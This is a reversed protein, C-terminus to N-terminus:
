AIVLDEVKRVFPIEGSEIDALLSALNDVLEQKSLGQTEYDPYDNLYGLYFEQDQWYTYKLTRM